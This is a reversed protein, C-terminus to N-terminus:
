VSVQSRDLSRYQIAEAIHQSQIATMQDLDAITRAIKIIRHFARASLGLRDSATELLKYSPEDLHCHAQLMKQSMQANCHISEEKFRVAQIQRANAVRERIIASSESSVENKLEKYSVAPVDVHIDIRDMLPGSIKSRYRHIQHSSCRCDHNPDGLYGCPCPNMAAVLTFISPYTVSIAARSITVSQDEIPQRLVELVNKKFEALEDLFLVGNHALSVEGPKPSHGGGILGADSITHHPSRFPRRTILADNKKLVGAVSYIQTTEIAEDFCIPPLITSLRKAMMTKGSGPPGIMIVNHGGSAAVELARKVNEQGKVESFDNVSSTQRNFLTNIDVRTPPIDIIGRCYDVLDKLHEIGIVTIDEIVAAEHANVKPLIVGKLGARKAGIAMPLSGNVAKVRGDLSLEGLFLYQDLFEWSFINTAALIGAAIPLDFGTGEKRINAPALNVTIREYPFYYGSNGIASKVRDKSEKVTAEPLGVMTFASLGNSIDVEVEVVHAEIGIIACSLIQSLM